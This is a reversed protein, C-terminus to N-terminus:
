DDGQYVFPVREDLEPDFFDISPPILPATNKPWTIVLHAVQGDRSVYRIRRESSDMLWGGVM